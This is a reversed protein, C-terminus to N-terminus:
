EKEGLTILMSDIYNEVIPGSEWYSRFSVGLYNHVSTSSEKARHTSIDIKTDNLQAKLYKKNNGNFVFKIVNFPAGDGYQIYDSTITQYASNHDRLELTKTSHNLRLQPQYVVDDIYIAVEFVFWKFASIALFQVEFGVNTVFPYPFTRKIGAYSNAENTAPLLISYPLLACYKSSVKPENGIDSYESTWGTLGYEFGDSVYLLGERTFTAISGLRAALEAFNLDIALNEFDPNIGFDPYDQGGFGTPQAM